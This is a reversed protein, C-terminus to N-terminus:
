TTMVIEIKCKYVTSPELNTFQYADFSQNRWVQEFVPETWQDFMQQRNMLVQHNSGVWYLIIYFYEISRRPILLSSRLRWELIASDHAVSHMECHIM